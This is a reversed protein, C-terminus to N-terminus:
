RTFDTIAKVLEDPADLALFHGADKVIVMQAGPITNHDATREPVRSWDHDGYVLLVPVTISGYERRAAEWEAWHRVLSMFAQYHGRRNGVAYM